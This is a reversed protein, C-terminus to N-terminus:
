RKLILQDAEGYNDYSSTIVKEGPELGDLIEYYLTNERGIHIPRKLANRGSEDLVYVWRGGTKQYFGGTPLLLAEALDGLELRVRLTQGRRIGEPEDGTFQMDVEFRGNLVEPYVKDISLRYKEGSFIFTGVQGRNIRAIYHEDVSVRVMFGDLIDIQGLREGRAKSEGVEANLSTLHGSVPAKLVLNEMNQKVIRLNSEMRALDDELRDIQTERFISDQRHSELALELSKLLYEYEDRSEELERTSILDNEALEANSDWIRKQRKISHNIELLQRRIELSNREMSLRTDRLSNSQRVLEAERYMVDMLLNTNVLKIIKDGQNVFSGAELYVTDVRGGEIADLYHTRIPIVTGTVPIFEQFEGREVTSVTLREASVNLKSNRNGFILGYLILIAVLGSGAIYLIKKVTWKKKEIKRDM